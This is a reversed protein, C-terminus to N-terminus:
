TGADIRLSVDSLAWLAEASAARTAATLVREKLSSARQHSLWFRKSVRDVVVASAASVRRTYFPHATRTMRPLRGRTILVAWWLGRAGGFPAAWRRRATYSRTRSGGSRPRRPGSRRRRGRRRPRAGPRGASPRAPM